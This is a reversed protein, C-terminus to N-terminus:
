PTGPCFADPVLMAVAFGRGVDLTKPLTTWSETDPEYKYIKDSEVSPNSLTGGVALFSDEYPISAGAYLAEPLPNLGSRWTNTNLDLIEVSAIGGNSGM